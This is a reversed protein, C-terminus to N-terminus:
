HYIQFFTPFQHQIEEVWWHRWKLPVLKWIFEANYHKWISKLYLIKWIFSPWTNSTENAKTADTHTLHIDCQLCVHYSIVNEKKTTRRINTFQRKLHIKDSDISRLQLDYFSDDCFLNRRNCNECKSPIILESDNHSNLDDDTTSENDVDENIEINYKSRLETCLKRIRSTLRSVKRYISYKEKYDVNKTKLYENFSKIVRPWNNAQIIDQKSSKTKEIKEILVLAPDKAVRRRKRSNM